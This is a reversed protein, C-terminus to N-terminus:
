IKKADLRRRFYSVWIITASIAGLTDMTLDLITDNLDGIFKLYYHYSNYIPPTLFATASYEAFEWFIGVGLTMAVVVFFRLYQPLKSFENNYFSAVLMAVFFGGLFHFVVSM